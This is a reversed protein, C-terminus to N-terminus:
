NFDVLTIDFILVANAPVSGSGDNKYALGSPVFLKIHGGKGIKPLGIQWGQILKDLSPFYYPTTKSDFSVGTSMLIGDYIIYVGSTATPKAASGPTIIQYYLGSADKVASINKTTLYTTIQTDDLKAQAGADFKESKKCAALVTIILCFFLLYKKM